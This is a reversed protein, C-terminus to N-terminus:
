PDGHTWDSQWWTPIWPQVVVTSGAVQLTTQGAIAHLAPKIRLLALVTGRERDVSIVKGVKKASAQDVIDADKM